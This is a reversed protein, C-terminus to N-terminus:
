PLQAATLPAPPALHLWPPAEYTADLDRATSRREYWLSLAGIVATVAATSYSAISASRQANLNSQLSDYEQASRESARFGLLEEQTSYSLTQLVGGAILGVGSIAFSTIWTPRLAAPARPPASLWAPPAPIAIRQTPTEFLQTSPALTGSLQPHQREQTHARVQKSLHGYLEDLTLRQDADQDAAGALANLLHCTFLGGDYPQGQLDCRRTEEALQDGAAASLTAWSRQGSSIKELASNLNKIRGAAATAEEASVALEEPGKDSKVPRLKVGRTQTLEIDGAHCADVVMLLQSAEGVRWRLFEPLKQMAIATGVLNTPDSDHALLFTNDPRDAEPTGHGAFYLTIQDQPCHNLQGIAGEIRARTADQNLLLQAHSTPIRAGNPNTLYHYFTWADTAAGDLDSINPDQYDSVGIVVAWREPARACRDVEPTAQATPAPPTLYPRLKLGRTSPGASCASLLCLLAGLGATNMSHTKNMDVKQTLPALALEASCM